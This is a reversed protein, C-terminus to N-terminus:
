SQVKIYLGEDKKVKLDVEDSLEEGMQDQIQYDEKIFDEYLTTYGIYPRSLSCKNFTIKVFGEILPSLM